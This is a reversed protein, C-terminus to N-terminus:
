EEGSSGGRMQEARQLTHSAAEIVSQAGQVEADIDSSRKDASAEALAAGLMAVKSRLTGLAREEDVHRHASPLRERLEATQVRQEHLEARVAALDDKLESTLGVLAAPTASPLTVASAPATMAGHLTVAAPTPAAAVAGYLSMTSAPPVVTGAVVAPAAITPAATAGGITTVSSSPTDAGQFLMRPGLTSVAASSVAVSPASTASAPTVGRERLQAEAVRLKEMATVASEAAVM